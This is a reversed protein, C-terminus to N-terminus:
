SPPSHQQAEPPLAAAVSGAGASSGPWFLGQCASIYCCILNKFWKPILIPQCTQETFGFAEFHPTLIGDEERYIQANDSGRGQQHLPAATAASHFLDM